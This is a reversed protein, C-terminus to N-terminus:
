ATVNTEATEDIVRPLSYKSQRKSLRDRSYMRWAIPGVANITVTPWWKGAIFNTIEKPELGRVGRAKADKLAEVIMVPMTPIGAPKGTPDAAAPAVEPEPELEPESEADLSALVRETIELDRAQAELAALLERQQEIRHSIARRKYQILKLKSINAMTGFIYPRIAMVAIAFGVCRM